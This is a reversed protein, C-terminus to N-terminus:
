DYRLFVPKLASFNSHIGPVVKVAFPGGRIQAQDPYYLTTRFSTHADGVFVSCGSPGGSHKYLVNLTACIRKSFLEAQGAQAVLTSKELSVATFNFRLPAAFASSQVTVTDKSSSVVVHLGIYDSAFSQTYCFIGSWSVSYDDENSMFLVPPKTLDISSM